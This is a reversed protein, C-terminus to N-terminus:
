PKLSQPSELLVGLIESILCLSQHTSAVCILHLSLALFEFLLIKRGENLIQQRRTELSQPHQRSARVSIAKLLAAASEMAGLAMLYPRPNLQWWQLHRHLNSLQWWPGHSPLQLSRLPPLQVQGLRRSRCNFIKLAFPLLSMQTCSRKSLNFGNGARAAVSILFMSLSTASFWAAKSDVVAM